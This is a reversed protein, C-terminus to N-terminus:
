RRRRDLAQRVRQTLTAPSFPKQLFDIEGGQVGHRLVEDDTYGSVFLVALQPREQVLTAALQPGGMHPMVVDTVLLEIRGVHARALALAQVGDGAALVRFGARELVSIAVTRVIPEDEVLLVTEGAKDGDM